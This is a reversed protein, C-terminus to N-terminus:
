IRASAVAVWCWWYLSALSCFILSQRRYRQYYNLCDSSRANSVSSRFQTRHATSELPQPWASQLNAHTWQISCSSLLPANGYHLYPINWLVHGCHFSCQSWCSYAWWYPLSWRLRWIWSLCRVRFVRCYMAREIWFDIQGTEVYHLDYWLEQM